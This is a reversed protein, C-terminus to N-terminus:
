GAAFPRAPLPNGWAGVVEHREDRLLVLYYGPATPEYGLHLDFEATTESVGHHHDGHTVRLEASAYPRETPALVRAVGDGIAVSGGLDATSLGGVAVVSWHDRGTREVLPALTLTASPGGPDREVRFLQYTSDAPSSRTPTVSPNDWGLVEGAFERATSAPDLRWRQDYSTQRQAAANLPTHEPWIAFAERTDILSTVVRRLSEESLGYANLDWTRCEDSSLELRAGYGEHIEGIHAAGVRTSLETVSREAVPFPSTGPYVDIFSGAPGPWHWASAAGSGGGPGPRVEAAWGEPLWMPQIPVIECGAAASEPTTTSPREEPAISTSAGVNAAGDPTTKVALDTIDTRNWAFSSALLVAVLAASAIASGYVLATRRRRRARVAADIRSRVRGDDTWQESLSRLARSLDQDDM